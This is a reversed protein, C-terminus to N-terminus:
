CDAGRRKENEVDAANADHSICLEAAVKWTYRSSGEPRGGTIRSRGNPFHVIRTESCEEIGTPRRRFKKGVGRAASRAYLRKVACHRVGFFRRRRFRAHIRM